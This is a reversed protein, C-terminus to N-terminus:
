NRQENRKGQVIDRQQKLWRLENDQRNAIKVLEVSEQKKEAPGWIAQALFRFPNM